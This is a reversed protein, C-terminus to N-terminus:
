KAKLFNIIVNGLLIKQYFTRFHFGYQPLVKRLIIKWANSTRTIKREQLDFSRRKPFSGLRVLSVLRILLVHQYKKISGIMMQSRRFVITNETFLKNNWTYKKLVNKYSPMKKKKKAFIHKSKKYQRNCYILDFKVTRDTRLQFPLFSFFSQNLFISIQKKESKLITICVYLM